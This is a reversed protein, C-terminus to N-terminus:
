PVSPAQQTLTGQFVRTPDTSIMYVFSNSTSTPGVTYFAVPVNSVTAPGRGSTVSYTGSEGVNGYFGESDYQFDITGSLTPPTSGGNALYNGTSEFNGNNFDQGSFAQAYNGTVNASTLGTAQARMEGTAVAFYTAGINTNNGSSVLLISQQPSVQWGVIDENSIPGSSFTNMFATWRGAPTSATASYTGTFSPNYYGGMEDYDVIASALSGNANFQGTQALPYFYGGTCCDNGSLNFVQPGSFATNVTAQLEAYGHLFFTPNTNTSLLELRNPSVYYVVFNHTGTTPLTFSANGRSSSPFSIAGNSVVLQSNFVRFTGYDNEDIQGNITGTTINLGGVAGYPYGNADEGDLRVVYNGSAVPAGTFPQQLEIRGIADAIVTVTTSNSNYTTGDQFLSGQSPSSLVFRYIVQNSGNSGSLVMQGRGDPNVSYTGVIAEGLTQGGAASVTDRTGSTITGNGNASIVGAVSYNTSTNVGNATFVYTGSLSSNSFGAANGGTPASPVSVVNSSSSSSGGCAVLAGLAVISILTLVIKRM